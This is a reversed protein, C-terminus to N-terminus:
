MDPSDARLKVEGKIGQPKLIEGIQLYETRMYEGELYIHRASLAAYQVM